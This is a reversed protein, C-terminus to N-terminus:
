AALPLARSRAQTLAGTLRALITLDAHLRVRRMVPWDALPGLRAPM